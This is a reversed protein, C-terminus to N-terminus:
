QHTYHIAAPYQTNACSPTAPGHCLNDAQCTHGGLKSYYVLGHPWMHKGGQIRCSDRGNDHKCTSRAAKTTTHPFQDPFIMAGGVGAASHVDCLIHPMHPHQAHRQRQVEQRRANYAQHPAAEAESSWNVAASLSRGCWSLTQALDRHM